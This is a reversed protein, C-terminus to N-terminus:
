QPSPLGLRNRLAQVAQRDAELHRLTRAIQDEGESLRKGPLHRQQYVSM